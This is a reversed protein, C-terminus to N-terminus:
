IYGIIVLCDCKIDANNYHEKVASQVHVDSFLFCYM